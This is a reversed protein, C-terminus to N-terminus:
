PVIRQLWIKLHEERQEKERAETEKPCVLGKDTTFVSYFM